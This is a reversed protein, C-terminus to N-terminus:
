RVAEGNWVGFIAINAVQYANDESMSRLAAYAIGAREDETLRAAFITALGAARDGTIGLTLFFGIARAVRKHAPKAWKLMASKTGKPTNNTRLKAAKKNKQAGTAGALAGPNEKSTEAALQNSSASTVEQNTIDQTRPVKPRVAKITPPERRGAPTVLVKGSGQNHM